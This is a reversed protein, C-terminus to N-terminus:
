GASRAYVHWERYPRMGVREYVGAAGTTNESDVTLTARQKGARAIDDFARHMLAAAIGRRRHSPLVSVDAIYGDTVADVWAVVGVADGDAEAFVIASADWSESAYWEAEFTEFPTPSYDFHEVFATEHLQWFRREDRGVEFPRLTVGPPLDVATGPHGLDLEMEWSTRVHSFGARRLLEHAAVDVSPTLAHIDFPWEDRRTETLAELWDVLWVGLGRGRSAPDVVGESRLVSGASSADRFGTVAAVVVSEREVVVTDRELDVFPLRLMWGLFSEVPEPVLGLGEDRRRFLASLEPIDAM